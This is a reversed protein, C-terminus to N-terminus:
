RGGCDPPDGAARVVSVKEDAKEKVWDYVVPITSTALMAPTVMGFSHVGCRVDVGGAFLARAVLESCIIKDEGDLTASDLDCWGLRWGYIKLLDVTGYPKGNLSLAKEVAPTPALMPARRVQIRLFTPDSTYEALTSRRVGSLDAAEIMKDPPAIAFAAHSAWSKTVHQIIRGLDSDHQFLLFDGPELSFSFASM